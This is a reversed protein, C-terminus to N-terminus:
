PNTEQCCKRQTLAPKVPTQSVSELLGVGGAWVARERGKSMTTAAEQVFMLAATSMHNVRKLQKQGQSFEPQPIIFHTLFYFHSLVPHPLSNLIRTKVLGLHQILM